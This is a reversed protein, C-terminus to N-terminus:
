RTQLSVQVGTEIETLLKRAQTFYYTPEENQKHLTLVGALAERALDIRGHGFAVQGAHLSCSAAMAQVDVALRNAPTAVLQELREPMPLVFGEDGQRALAANTLKDMDLQTEGLDSTSKCHTYTGWLNMFGPNDLGATKIQAGNQCGSALLMVGLLGGITQKFFPQNM